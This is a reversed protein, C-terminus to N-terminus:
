IGYGELIRGNHVPAKRQGTPAPQIAESLSRPLAAAPAATGPAECSPPEVQAKHSPHPFKATLYGRLFHMIEKTAGRPFRNELERRTLNFYCPKDTTTGDLRRFGMSWGDFRRMRAKQLMMVKMKFHRPDRFIRDLTLNVFDENGEIVEFFTRSKYLLLGTVGCVTHHRHLDAMVTDLQADSLRAHTHSIYIARVLQPAATKPPVDPAPPEPSLIGDFNAVALGTYGRGTPVRGSRAAATFDRDTRTCDATM